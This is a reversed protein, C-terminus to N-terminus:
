QRPVTTALDQLVREPADSWGFLYGPDIDSTRELIGAARWRISVTDYSSIGANLDARGDCDLVGSIALDLHEHRGM